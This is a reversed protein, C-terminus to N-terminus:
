GPAKYIDISQSNINFSLLRKRCRYGPQRPYGIRVDLCQPLQVPIYDEKAAMGRLWEM